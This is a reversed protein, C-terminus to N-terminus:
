KAINSIVIKYDARQLFEPRHAVIIRTIPLGAIVDVIVKETDADLNATGEDLFLVQPNKYLARALLVRQRQGGSLASGMDGIMSLYGMPMALIDTHIQAQAAVKYIHEMDIKPDFFSINDAITGSLLQDDQMVVGIKRRWAMKNADTLPHDDILIEGETPVYLGLMLKLLTTKGGGSPGTLAVFDGAKIDLSIDDLVWPDAPSYRFRIDRLEIHGAAGEEQTAPALTTTTEPVAHAIDAIRELHLGLLRFEIFKNFLSTISNTFSQRYSMFAFLMGVTFIVEGSLILKAGFYVVLITQLGTILGQLTSLWIGYKGHVVNANITDAFLNRWISVRHNQASFLKIPTAARISEIMHTNEKASTIITEEQARRLFPYFLSTVLLLLFVSVLVVAGLLPSYIFIVVGTIVAMLGDIIGAVLSQTLATQIPATSAMRSLIDGIHRKEFFDTPLHILHKFINAVMQFSMQHGYYLITWERMLSAIQQIVTLAGFGLALVLLFKADFKVVAEDVVLQLYFPSALVILQMVISLILLQLLARKLGVLRGWLQSLRMKEKAVQKTFSMTPTLELAVGTFHESFKKLSMVKLGLAPDHIHVKEGVIKNLVVYHNLDWHLIAPTQLQPLHELELRLARSGLDLAAAMDIIADLSAGKLSVSFKQRMGNLDVDHGYYRAIMTLSALGCEMAETQLIVPLRKRGSFNLESIM